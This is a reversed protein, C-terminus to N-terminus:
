LGLHRPRPRTGPNLTQVTEADYYIPAGFLQEGVRDADREGHQHCEMYMLAAHGFEHRLVGELRHLPANCFKPAVVICLYGDRNMCYAMNRREPFESARGRKLDVAFGDGLQKKAKAHLRKFVPVVKPQM